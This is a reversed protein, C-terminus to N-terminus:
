GEVTSLAKTPAAHSRLLLEGTQAFVQYTFSRSHDAEISTTEGPVEYAEHGAIAVLMEAYETLQADFMRHAHYRADFYVAPSLALWVVGMGGVMMLLLRRRLSARREGM